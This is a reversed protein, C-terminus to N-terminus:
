YYSFWIDVTRAPEVWTIDASLQEAIFRLPVMTRNNKIFPNAEIVAPINDSYVTKSGIRLSIVKTNKTVTVEQSAANWNVSAGFQESIVRLPVFTRDNVIIPEVDSNIEQSNIFLKLNDHGSILDQMGYVSLGFETFLNYSIWGYGNIGWNTGWSNAIKFAQISDDYGIICVSHYGSSEGESSDYIYNYENLADFDPYIPIVTTCCNSQLFDKVLNVDGTETISGYQYNKFYSAEVFNDFNPLTSYDEENYPFSKLTACGNENILKYADEQYSGEDVGGNIMNYVYSPSFQFSDPYKGWDKAEQYSKLYYGVAWGTCSNQLGQNGIPPMEYTHDVYSPLEYSASRMKFNLKPMNEHLAKAGLGHDRTEAYSIASLLLTFISILFLYRKM